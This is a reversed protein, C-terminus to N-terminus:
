TIPDKYYVIEKDFSVEDKHPFINESADTVPIGNVLVRGKKIFEKVEKRTGFKLNSLFKDIRM